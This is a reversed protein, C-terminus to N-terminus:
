QGMAGGTRWASQHARCGGVHELGLTDLRRRLLRSVRRGVPASRRRGWITAAYAVILIVADRNQLVGRLPFFGEAPPPRAETRPMMVWAIAFGLLGAIAAVLFATRWGWLIGARGLLFSLAAGVTFSSIYLAAVRARRDGEVGDTIARLGPMYMGALGLGSLARFVLAPGLADSLALGFSSIVSLAASGLYVARASIRDTAAVMPIVGLMYGGSIVGALWGSQMGNLSWAGMLQPLVAPVISYGALGLIEATCIALVCATSCTGSSSSRALVM